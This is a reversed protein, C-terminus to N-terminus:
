QKFSHFTKKNKYTAFFRDLLRVATSKFATGFIPIDKSYSNQKPTVKKLFFQISLGLLLCFTYPLSFCSYNLTECVAQVNMKQCEIAQWLTCSGFFYLFM